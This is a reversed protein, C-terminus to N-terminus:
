THYWKLIYMNMFKSKTQIPQTKSNPNFGIWLIKNTEKIPCKDRNDPNQTDIYEYAKQSPSNKIRERTIKLVNSLKTDVILNIQSASHLLIPLQTNLKKADLLAIGETLHNSVNLHETTSKDLYEIYPQTSRSCCWM